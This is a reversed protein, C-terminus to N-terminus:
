SGSCPSHVDWRPDSKEVLRVLQEHAVAAEVEDVTLPLCSLWAQAVTPGDVAAEGHYELVQM